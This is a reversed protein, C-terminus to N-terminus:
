RQHVTIPAVVGISAKAITAKVYGYINKQSVTIRKKLFRPLNIKNKSLWVVGPLLLSKLLERRM